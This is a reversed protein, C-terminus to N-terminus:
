NEGRHSRAARDRRAPSRSMHFATLYVELSDNRLIGLLIVTPVFRYSAGRKVWIQITSLIDKRSGPLGSSLSSVLAPLTARGASTPRCGPWPSQRQRRGAIALTAVEAVPMANRISVSESPTVVRFPIYPVSLESHGLSCHQRPTERIIFCRCERLPQSSATCRRWRCEWAKPWM